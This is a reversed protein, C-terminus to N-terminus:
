IEVLESVLIRALGKGRYKPRVFVSIRGIHRKWGGLSQHLSADAIVKNGDFALIPLIKGYDINQCWDRIVGPDTVRHKFLILETAPVDVFFAHFEKEDSAKLPRLTISSGDKLKITKPYAEVINDLAQM